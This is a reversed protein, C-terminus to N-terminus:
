QGVLAHSSEEEYGPLMEEEVPGSVLNGHEKTDSTVPKPDGLM